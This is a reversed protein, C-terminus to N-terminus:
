RACISKRTAPGRTPSRPSGVLKVVNPNTKEADRVIEVCLTAIDVAADEFPKLGEYGQARIARNFALHQKCHQMEQKCFIDLENHLRANGPDIKGQAIKMVKLLFPEVYAPILSASNFNQSFELHPAWHAKVQSFDFKPFRAKM